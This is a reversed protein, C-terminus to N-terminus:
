FDILLENIPILPNLKWEEDSGLILVQYRGKAGTNKSWQTYHFFDSIEPITQEIESRSLSGRLKLLRLIKMIITENRTKINKKINKILNKMGWEADTEKSDSDTDSRFKVIILM